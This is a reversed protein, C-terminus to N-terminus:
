GVAVTHSILSHNPTHNDADASLQGSPIDRYPKYQKKQTIYKQEPNIQPVDSKVARASISQIVIQSRNTAKVWVFAFYFFSFSM